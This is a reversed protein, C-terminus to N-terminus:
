AQGAISGDAKGTAPTLAATRVTQALNAGRRARARSLAPLSAVWPMLRGMLSSVGCIGRAPHAQGRNGGTGQEIEAAMQDALEVAEAKQSEM